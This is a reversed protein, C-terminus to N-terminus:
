PLETVKPDQLTGSLLYTKGDSLGDSKLEVTKKGLKPHSLVVVYNGIPLKSLTLPTYPQAVKVEEGDRVLREVKAFPGVFIRLTFSGTYSAMSMAADRIRAAELAVKALLDSGELGRLIVGCWTDIHGGLARREELTGGPKRLDRDAEAVQKEFWDLVDSRYSPAHEELLALHENTRGAVTDNEPKWLGLGLENRMERWDNEWKEERQKRLDEATPPPTAPPKVPDTPPKVTGGNVVPPKGSDRGLVVFAAVAAAAVVAAAVIGVLLGSKGARPARATVTEDALYRSLDEAMEGATAYRDAKSKAMAKLVIREVPEPIGPNIKRPAEPELTCVKNLIELPTQGQIPQKRTLVTYMTAGLSYIDSQGDIEDLKGLAQEPPMYAPTGLVSGTVSIASSSQMAKALGFDMVYPWRESTLMINQPKLDRHVVGAKHAAEIGQAVKMFIDVTEKVNMKATALTEGDIYEMALFHRDQEGPQAAPVEGVEYISALNPHRLRAALKAERQFRIVDKEEDTILFKIAIWRTLKRDWAMWVAGMGGRGIQRVLVYQNMLNKPDSACELVDPPMEDLRTSSDSPSRKSTEGGGSSCTAHQPSSESFGCDPCMNTTADVGLDGAADLPKDPDSM